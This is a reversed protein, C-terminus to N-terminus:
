RGMWALFETGVDLWTRREKPGTRRLHGYQGPDTMLARLASVVSDNGVHRVLGSRGFTEANGTPYSLVPLGCAIAEATVMSYSEHQSLLVLLDADIMEDNVRDHEVPGLLEIKDALGRQTVM